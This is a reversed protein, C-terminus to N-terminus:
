LLSYKSFIDDYSHHVKLMNTPIKRFWRLDGAEYSEKKMYWGDFDSIPNCEFLIAVHHGRMRPYSLSEMYERRVNAIKLISSKITVDTGLEHKATKHIREEFSEGYRICGGVLSWGQGYFEDDRWSLLVENKKNLLLLDVNVIPVLASIMLFVDQPLGNEPTRCNKLIIESCERIDDIM